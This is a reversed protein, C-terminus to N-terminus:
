QGRLTKGLELGIAPQDQTGSVRIVLRTGAGKQRLLADFPKVMWRKFGTMTNSASADLRVAGALSLAKTELRHTGNLTIV